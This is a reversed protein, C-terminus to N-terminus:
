VSGPPFFIPWHAGGPPARHPSIHGIFCRFVMRLGATAFEFFCRVISLGGGRAPNHKGGITKEVAGMRCVLAPRASAVRLRSTAHSRGVDAGRYVVSHFTGAVVVVIETLVNKGDPTLAVASLLANMVVTEGDVVVIRCVSPSSQAEHESTLPSVTGFGGNWASPRELKDSGADM